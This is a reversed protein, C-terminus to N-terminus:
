LALQGAAFGLPKLLRYVLALGDLLVTPRGISEASIENTASRILLIHWGQKRGSGAVWRWGVWGADLM